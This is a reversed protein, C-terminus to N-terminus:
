KILKINNFFKQQQLNVDDSTANIFKINNFFKQQQLNTDFEYM